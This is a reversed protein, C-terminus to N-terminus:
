KDWPVYSSSLTRSFYPCSKSDKTQSAYINGKHKKIGGKLKDSLYYMSLAIENSILMHCKTKNVSLNQKQCRKIVKGLNTLDEEFTSGDLNTLYEEFMSGYTTFDDM